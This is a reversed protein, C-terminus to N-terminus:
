PRTKHEEEMEELLLVAVLQSRDVSDIDIGVVSGTAAETEAEAEEQVVVVVVLLLLLLLLLLM